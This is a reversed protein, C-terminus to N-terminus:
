GALDAPGPAEGPKPPQYVGDHKVLVTDSHFRGDDGLSGEVVVGQGDRFLNPVSGRHVVTLRADDDSVVFTIEGGDREVSGPVVLGGLRVRDGVARDARALLDSPTDYYVLSNSLGSAAVWGLAGLVVVSAFVVRGRKM